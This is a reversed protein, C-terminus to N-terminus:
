GTERYMENSLGKCKLNFIQLEFCEVFNLSEIYKLKTLLELVDFSNLLRVTQPKISSVFFNILPKYSNVMTTFM